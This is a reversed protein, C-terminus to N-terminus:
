DAREERKTRVWTSAADSRGRLRLGAKWVVYLPALALDVLGRLGTVRHPGGDERRARPRAADEPVRQAVAQVGLRERRLLGPVKYEFSNSRNLTYLCSPIRGSLWPGPSTHFEM